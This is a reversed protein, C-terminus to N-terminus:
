LLLPPMGGEQGCASRHQIAITAQLEEVQVEPGRYIIELTPFPAHGWQIM